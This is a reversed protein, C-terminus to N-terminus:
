FKNNHNQLDTFNRHVPGMEKPQIKYDVIIHFCFPPLSVVVPVGPRTEHQLTLMNCQQLSLIWVNEGEDLCGTEMDEWLVELVLSLGYM